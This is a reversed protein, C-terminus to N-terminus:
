IFKISHEKKSTCNKQTSKNSVISRDYLKLKQEFTSKKQKNVAHLRVLNAM